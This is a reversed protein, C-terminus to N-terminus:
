PGFRYTYDELQGKYGKPVLEKTYTKNHWTVSPNQAGNAWINITHAEITAGNYVPRISKGANIEYYPAKQNQAPYWGWKETEYDRDWIRLWVCIKQNSNNKLVLRRTNQTPWGELRWAYPTQAQSNKIEAGEPAGDRAKRFTAMTEEKVRGFFDDWTVEGDEGDSRIGSPPECFYKCFSRTFFGGEVMNVWGFEGETAATMDVIGTHKFFLKNFVKWKAPVRRAPPEFDGYSSCCDTVMVISRAGTNNLINRIETRTIDGGSTYLYHGKKKDFAGHGCYYFFLSSESTATTGTGYAKRIKDPTVDDDKLVNMYVRGKFKELNAGYAENIVDQLHKLNAEMGGRLKGAGRNVASNTDIVLLVHLNAAEEARAVPLCMVLAVIAVLAKSGPCTPSFPGNM